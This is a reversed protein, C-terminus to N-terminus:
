AFVATVCPHDSLFFRGFPLISLCGAVSYACVGAVAMWVGSLLGLFAWRWYPLEAKKLSLTELMHEVDMQHNIEVETQYKKLHKAFDGITKIHVHVTAHEDDDSDFLRSGNFMIDKEVVYEFGFDQHMLAFIEERKITIEGIAARPDLRANALDLSSIDISFNSNSQTRVLKNPKKRFFELTLSSPAREDEIAVNFKQGWKKTTRRKVVQVEERGTRDLKVKELKVPYSVYIDDPKSLHKVHDLRIKLMKPINHANKNIKTGAPEKEAKREYFSPVNISVSGTALGNGNSSGNAVHHNTPQELSIEM